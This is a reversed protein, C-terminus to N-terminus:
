GVIVLGFFELVNQRWYPWRDACHRVFVLFRAWCFPGSQDLAKVRNPRRTIETHVSHQFPRSYGGGGIGSSDLGSAAASGVVSKPFAAVQLGHVQGLGEMRRRERQLGTPVQGAGSLIREEGPPSDFTGSEAPRGHRGSRDVHYYVVSDDTRPGDLGLGIGKSGM